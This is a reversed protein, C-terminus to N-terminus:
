RVPDQGTSVRAPHAVPVGADGAGAAIAGVLATGTLASVLRRTAPWAGATRRPRRARLFLAASSLPAAVIGTLVLAALM